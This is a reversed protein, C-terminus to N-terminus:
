TEVNDLLALVKKLDAWVKSKEIPSRLLYAPHYTVVVPVNTEPVRHLNARLQGVGCDVGLISHAAFRGLALIVSPAVLTIQEDLYGRCNSVESSTPDRNEPPRCKLVNTIYVQERSQGIAQLMKDLLQGARGVFPHGLRDEHVGPAEGIVMLRASGDGDGFVTNARSTHLQCKSCSRVEKELLILSPEESCDDAKEERESRSIWYDIGINQLIKRRRYDLM